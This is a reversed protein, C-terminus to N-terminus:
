AARGHYGHNRVITRGVAVPRLCTECRYQEDRIACKRRGIVVTSDPLGSSYGADQMQCKVGCLIASAHSSLRCQRLAAKVPMKRDFPRAIIRNQKKIKRKPAAKAASAAAWDFGSSSGIAKTTTRPPSGPQSGVQGSHIEASPPIAASVGALSFFSSLVSPPRLSGITTEDGPPSTSAARASPRIIRCYSSSTATPLVLNM